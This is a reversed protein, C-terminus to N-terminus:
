APPLGSAAATSAIHTSMDYNGTRFCVVVGAGSAQADHMAKNPHDPLGAYYVHTVKPHQKLFQAVALANEQGRELRLPMTKLGRLLLWCDFPALGTGEANQFFYVQKALEPDKVSVCGAMTDSHGVAFKTCSTVCFDAGHDLPKMLLPSMLTNDVSLLIGEHSHTVDALARLNCVRMMPNTPSEVM